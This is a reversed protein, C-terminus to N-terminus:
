IACALRTVHHSMANYYALNCRAAIQSSPLTYYAPLALESCSLKYRERAYPCGYRKQMACANDSVSLANSCKCCEVWMSMFRDSFLALLLLLAPLAAAGVKIGNLQKRYENVEQESMRALEGVQACGCLANCVINNTLSCFLRQLICLVPKRCCLLQCISCGPTEVPIMMKSGQLKGIQVLQICEHSFQVCASM